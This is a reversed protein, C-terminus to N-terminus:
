KLKDVVKTSRAANSVIGWTFYADELGSTPAMFKKNTALAALSDLKGKRNFDNQKGM